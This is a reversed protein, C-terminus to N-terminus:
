RSLFFSLPIEMRWTGSTQNDSTTTDKLVWHNATRTATPDQLSFSAFSGVMERATLPLGGAGRTEVAGSGLRILDRHCPGHM